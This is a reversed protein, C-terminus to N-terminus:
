FIDQNVMQLEILKNYLEGITESLKKGTDVTVLKNKDVEDPKDYRETLMEFDELRADSITQSDDRKKLRAKITEDSAVAEIFLYEAGIEELQRVLRHRGNKISFTADLIVSQGNQISEIAGKSMESYTSESMDPSYIEKRVDEPPREHLPLGALEKRIRDSSFLNINLKDRLHEALTSKGTGIRGMCVLVLPKSGILAYRLSLDFYVSAIQRAENRDREEVEEERSKMSKVKGKVYARYCKYFDIITSLEPDDLRESMQKVFYRSESWRENYDLDMALFALDVAEDGCRL